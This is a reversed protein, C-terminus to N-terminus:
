TGSQICHHLADGRCFRLPEGGPSHRGDMDTTRRRFPAQALPGLIHFVESWCERFPKGLAAQWHKDGLVPRYPDNYLQIFDPGWWLLMPFRNALLLKVMVRLTPSWREVPGLPNRSWDFGRMLAGMEGGGAFVDQSACGGNERSNKTM